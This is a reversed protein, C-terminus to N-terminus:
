AKKLVDKEFDWSVPAKRKISENVMHAVAAAHHGAHGDECRHAQAHAGLRLLPRPPHRDLRARGRDVVRGPEADASPWTDPKERKQVAPDAWYAKELNSPWSAVIWGNGEVLHEPTFIMRDGRFVLSGEHGLIAFGSEGGGSSNFTGSLSVSFTEKGYVVSANLTDPVEHTKQHRYNAATAM